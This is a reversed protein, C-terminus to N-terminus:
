LHQPRACGVFGAFGDPTGSGDVASGSRHPGITIGPATTDDIGPALRSSSSQEHQLRRPPAVLPSENDLRHTRLSMAPQCRHSQLTPPTGAPAFYYVRAYSESWLSFHIIPQCGHVQWSGWIQYQPGAEAGRGAARTGIRRGRERTGHSPVRCLSGLDAVHEDGSRVPTTGPGPGIGKADSAFLGAFPTYRLQCGM